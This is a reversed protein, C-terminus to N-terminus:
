TPAAAGTASAKRGPGLMSPWGTGGGLARRCVWGVGVLLALPFLHLAPQLQDLFTLDAVAVAAVIATLRSAPRVPALADLALFVLVCDQVFQNPNVLLMVAVAAALMSRGGPTETGPPVRRAALAFTGLIAVVGAAWLVNVATVAGQGLWGVLLGNLGETSALDGQWIAAGTEGAGTFHSTVVALLYSAYTLYPGTGTFPLSVFAVVAGAGVAAGVARWRRAVILGLLPLVIFQPKLWFTALAVGALAWRGRRAAELAILGAALLLLSWQGQAIAHYVPFSTAVLTGALLRQRGPLGRALWLGAGLALAASVVAWVARGVVVPLTAVPAFLVAAPPPNIFPMYGNMGVPEPIVTRQLATVAGADYLAEPRGELILRGAAWFALVDHHGDAGPAVALEAVLRVVLALGLVLLGAIAAPVAWPEAGRLVAAPSLSRM